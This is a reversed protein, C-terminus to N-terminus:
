TAQIPFRGRCSVAGEKVTLEELHFEALKHLLSRLLTTLELDNTPMAFPTAIMEQVLQSALSREVAQPRIHVEMLVQIPQLLKLPEGKVLDPTNLHIHEACLQISTIEIGRYVTETAIVTASPIKGRLIQWSSGAVEIHLYGVSQVQSRLWLKVLPIVVRSVVSM